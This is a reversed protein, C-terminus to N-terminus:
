WVYPCTIKWIEFNKLTEFNTKPSRIQVDHLSRKMVELIKLEFNDERKEVALGRDAGIRCVARGFFLVTCTPSLAVNVQILRTLPDRGSKLHSLHFLDTM